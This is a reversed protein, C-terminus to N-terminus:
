IRVSVEGRMLKPLLLDRQQILTKTQANNLIIKEVLPAITKDYQQFIRDPAIPIMAETLHHRQIHGMTTSKSEAIERFERLHHKTAFYYFWKPYEESTVKFLHQNLAGEGDHWIVLQLSGSWSFLVDGDRVVYQDPISRSCRDTADTIGQKLEKIKIVPLSDTGTEPYNQLPLGNLYNAIQDLPKREWTDKPQEMFWARFATEALMELTENERQLVFVKKSLQFYVNGIFERLRKEPYPILLKDFDTKKFHPIVGSVDLNRIQQQVEESRLAAFLFLPYIINEDARIAVMDQAIAFDVPDPVLCV